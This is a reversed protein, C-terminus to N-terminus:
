GGYAFVIAGLFPSAWGFPVARVLIPTRRALLADIFDFGLVGLLALTPTLILAFFAKGHSWFPFRLSLMVLSAIMLPPLVLVLSVALRRGLDDDKLASRVLRM